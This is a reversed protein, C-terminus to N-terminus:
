KRTGVGESVQRVWYGFLYGVQRKIGLRILARPLREDITLVAIKGDLPDFRRKPSM